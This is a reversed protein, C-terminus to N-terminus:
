LQNIVAPSMPADTTTSANRAPNNATRASQAKRAVLARKAVRARRHPM